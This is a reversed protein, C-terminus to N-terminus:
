TESSVLHKKPTKSRSLFSTSALLIESVHSPISSSCLTTAINPALANFPTCRRKNYILTCTSILTAFTNSTLENCTPTNSERLVDQRTCSLEPGISPDEYICSQKSFISRESGM